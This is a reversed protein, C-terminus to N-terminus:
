KKAPNQKIEKTDHAEKTAKPIRFILDMELVKGSPGFLVPIFGLYEYGKKEVYETIVAQHEKLESTILKNNAYKLRVFEM